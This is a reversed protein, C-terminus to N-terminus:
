RAGSVHRRRGPRPHAPLPSGRLVDVRDTDLRGMVWSTGPLAKAHRKLPALRASVDRYDRVAGASCVLTALSLTVERGAATFPTDLLTSALPGLQELGAAILFDDGGVHGVAVGPLTAAVDTLARGLARILENGAAFGGTDNVSKFGDVDLWGVAFTEGAALRREIDQGVEDSGPLRTLPNLATAYRVQHDVLGRVVDGVQVVGLVAYHDDVVVIDDHRRVREVGALMQLLGLATCDARVVFPPDALRRALRRTYLAHGHPGSLSLLFRTRDLFARPRRQEDTLIVSNALPRDALASWATHATVDERLMTAAHVFDTVLPGPDRAPSVASEPEILATMTESLTAAALPRRSAPALLDGQALHGGAARLATLQAETAVGIGVVQAGIRSALHAISGAVARQAAADPLRAVTAADLKLLEPGAEIILGLPTGADGLDDFAVRLGARRLLSLGHIFDARALGDFPAGIEVVVDRPRHGGERVADLVPGLEEPRDVTSAALNVHTPLATRYEAAARIATAALAVDVRARPNERGVQRRLDDATRATVRVTAEMAVVGGTHLNLLPQYSVRVHDLAVAVAGM